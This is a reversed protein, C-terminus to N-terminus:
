FDEDLSYYEEKLPSYAPYLYNKIGSAKIIQLVKNRQKRLKNDTFNQNINRILVPLLLVFLVVIVLKSLANFLTLKTKLKM